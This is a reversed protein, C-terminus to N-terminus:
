DGSRLEDYVGVVYVMPGLGWESFVFFFVDNSTEWTSGPFRSELKM